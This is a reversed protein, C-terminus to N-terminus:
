QLKRTANYKILTQLQNIAVANLQKLREGQALGQEILVSNLSEMNSLVVLQELTAYDRINGELDPNKTRWEKATQGFLAVNLLDAENSYIFSQQQKTITPPILNEKIADTHIHYNVKALMRSLNWEIKLRDNEDQKLRKFEKLMYVKFEASIWSAFELAIDQHAFTGGNRGQKSIMGKADTLEIWRNPSLTFSNSGAEFLLPDIEVGKFDPNSLQEWIALFEITSRNRMWNKVVDKPEGPNKNRAMDTLSIFTEDGITLVTIRFGKVDIQNTEKM